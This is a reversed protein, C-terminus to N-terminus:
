SKRRQARWIMGIFLAKAPPLIALVLATTLAGFASLTLWLPWATKSVVAVLLPVVIHGVIIIGLWSPGDDARIHGFAEGCKECQAVPTLYAAFLRGEGCHPCRLRLARKLISAISPSSPM